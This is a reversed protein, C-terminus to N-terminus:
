RAFRFVRDLLIMGPRAAIAQEVVGTWQESLQQCTARLL